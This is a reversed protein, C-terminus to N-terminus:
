PCAFSIYWRWDCVDIQTKRFGITNVSHEAEEVLVGAKIRECGIPGAGDMNKAVVSANDRTDVLVM